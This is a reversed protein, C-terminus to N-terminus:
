YRLSTSPEVRAAQWSPYITASLTILVGAIAILSVDLPLVKIPLTSIPYVDSPLEIFKYRSLLECVGLGGALGILTGSMGIFLGEFMFIRLIQNATAGMAKLIAIDKTKEMVVMILTSIINFAAVLVILTLIIFMATKELKLASFLNYNMAMWDKVQFTDGLTTRLEAAVEAAKDIDKITIEIGHVEDPIDFFNQATTLDIYVLSSDYEYMGTEFIGTIQCSKIRPIIGMPSLPGSPSLLRLRDGMHVHLQKALQVGIIIGPPDGPKMPLLSKLGDGHILQGPLSLVSGATVHDIGRVVCGSGGSGTTIMSQGYVYPTAGIVEPHKGVTALVDDYDTMGGGFKQVVIHSNVGLIKDRFEEGFGTMVAIVIILAMVGVAVGAVSILSILSIFGKKKTSKLYRLCVFFEFNM